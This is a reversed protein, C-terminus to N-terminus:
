ATRVTKKVLEEEKQRCLRGTSRWGGNNKRDDNADLFCQWTILRYLYTTMGMLMVNVVVEKEM